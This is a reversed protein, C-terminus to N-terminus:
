AKWYRERVGPSSADAVLPQAEVCLEERLGPPTERLRESPPYLFIM